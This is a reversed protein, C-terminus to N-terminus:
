QIMKELSFYIFHSSFVINSNASQQFAKPSDFKIFNIEYNESSLHSLYQKKFPNQQQFNLCIAFQTQFFFDSLGQIHECNPWPCMSRKNIFIINVFDFCKPRFVNSM